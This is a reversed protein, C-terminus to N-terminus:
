PSVRFISLRPRFRDTVGASERHLMDGPVPLLGVAQLIDRAELSRVAVGNERMRRQLETRWPQAPRGAGSRAPTLLFPDCWPERDLGALMADYAACVDCRHDADDDRHLRILTATDARLRERTTRAREVLRSANRSDRAFRAPLLHGLAWELDDALRAFDTRGNRELARLADRMLRARYEYEGDGALDELELDDPTEQLAAPYTAAGSDLRPRWTLLLVDFRTRLEETLTSNDTTM